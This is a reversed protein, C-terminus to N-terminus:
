EGEGLAIIVRTKQYTSDSAPDEILQYFHVESDDEVFTPGFCVAVGSPAEEEHLVVTEGSAIEQVILRTEECWVRKTGDHSIASDQAPTTVSRLLTDNIIEKEMGQKVLQGVPVRALVFPRDTPGEGGCGFPVMVLLLLLLLTFRAM